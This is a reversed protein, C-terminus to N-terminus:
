YCKTRDQMRSGQPIMKKAANTIFASEGPFEYEPGSLAAVELQGCNKSENHAEQPLLSDVANSMSIQGASEWVIDRLPCSKTPPSKNIECYTTLNEQESDLTTIAVCWLSWLPYLQFLLRDCVVPPSCRRGKRKKDGENRNREVKKSEGSIVRPQPHTGTVDM